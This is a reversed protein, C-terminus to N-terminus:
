TDRKARDRCYDIMQERMAFRSGLRMSDELMKAAEEWTERRVTKVFAVLSPVTLSGGYSIFQEALERDRDTMAVVVVVGVRVVVGVVVAVRVEVAVAVVLAVVLAVRVGVEVAVRVGVM